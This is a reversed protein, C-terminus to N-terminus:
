VHARGIEAAEEASDRAERTEDASEDAVHKPKDKETM